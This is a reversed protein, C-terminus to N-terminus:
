RTRATAAMAGDLIKILRSRLEKVQTGDSLRFGTERRIARGPKPNFSLFNFSTIIAYGEDVVVVKEHTNGIKVLRLRGRFEQSVKHLRAIANEQERAKRTKEGRRDLMEEDEIGYGITIRLDKNREMGKRFWDLMEQDVAATRIWPSVIILSRSADKIAQELAPRHDATDLIAPTAIQTVERLAVELAEQQPGPKFRDRDETPVITQGDAEM